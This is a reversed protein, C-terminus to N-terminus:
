QLVYRQDLAWIILQAIASGLLCAGFLKALIVWAKPGSESPVAPRRESPVSCTAWRSM